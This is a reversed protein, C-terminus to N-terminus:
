DKLRVMCFGLYDSKLFHANFSNLKKVSFLYIFTMVTCLIKIPSRLSLIAVPMQFLGSCSSFTAAPRPICPPTHIRCTSCPLFISSLVLPALPASASINYPFSFGPSTSPLHCPSFLWSPLMSERVPIPSAWLTHLGARGETNSYAGGNAMQESNRKFRVMLCIPRFTVALAPSNAWCNRANSSKRLVWSWNGAVWWRYSWCWLSQRGRRCQMWM